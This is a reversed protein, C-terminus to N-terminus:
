SEFPLQFLFVRNSPSLFLTKVFDVPDTESLYVTFEIM